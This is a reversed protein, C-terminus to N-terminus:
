RGAEWGGFATDAYGGDDSVIPPPPLLTVALAGAAAGALTLGALGSWWLAIPGRGRPKPAHRLISDALGHPVAVPSWDALVADLRDAQALLMAGQASSALRIAAAQEHAPWRVITGGYADCLASFQQLDM